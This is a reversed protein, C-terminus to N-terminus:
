SAKTAKREMVTNWAGDEGLMEWRFTYSTM